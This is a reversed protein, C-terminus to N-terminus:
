PLFDGNGDRHKLAGALRGAFESRNEKQGPEVAVVEFCTQVELCKRIAHWIRM